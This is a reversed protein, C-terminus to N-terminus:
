LCCVIVVVTCVVFGVDVVVMVSVWGGVVGCVAAIVVEAIV